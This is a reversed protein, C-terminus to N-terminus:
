IIPIKVDITNVNPVLQEEDSDISRGRLIKSIEHVFSNTGDDTHEETTASRTSPQDESVVDQVTELVVSTTEAAKMPDSYPSITAMPESEDKETLLNM